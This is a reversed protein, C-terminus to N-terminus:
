STLHWTLSFQAAEGQLTNSANSPLQMGILFYRAQGHAPGSGLNLATATSNAGGSFTSLSSAAPTCAGAGAPFWCSTPVWASTTEQIYFQAGGSACPNAGGPSPASPTAAVTCSPMYVSLSSPDISGTNAITVQATVPTGPYNLTASTFLAQCANNVNGPSAAGGYSLCVTGANVVNSFTLTGSAVSSHANAEQSSLLAYTGSATLSGVSGIVILTALIKKLRWTSSTRGASGQVARYTHRIM